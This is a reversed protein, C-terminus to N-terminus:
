EVVKPDEVIKLKENDKIITVVTVINNMSKNTSCIIKKVSKNTSYIIKKTGYM